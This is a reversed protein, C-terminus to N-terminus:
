HRVKARYESSIRAIEQQVKLEYEENTPDRFYLEELDIPRCCDPSLSSTQQRILSRPINNIKAKDTQDIFISLFLWNTGSTFQFWHGGQTIKFFSMLSDIGGSWSFILIDSSANYIM